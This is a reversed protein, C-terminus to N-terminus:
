PSFGRVGGREGIPLAGEGWGEGRQPSSTPSPIDKEV